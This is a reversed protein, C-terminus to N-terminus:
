SKKRIKKFALILVVVGGVIFVWGVSFPFSTQAETHAPEDVHASSGIVNVLFQTTVVTNNHKFQGILTYVGPESFTYEFPIEPGYFHQMGAHDMGEMHAHTHGGIQLDERLVAVHAESGLYMQLDAIPKERSIHYSFLNQGTTTNEPATLNVTYEGFQKSRSFDYTINPLNEDGVVLFPLIASHAKGNSSYDLLAAYFGAKPFTHELIYIGQSQNVFGSSNEPHIHATTVLDQGVLVTHLEREHVVDLETVPAGSDDALTIYITVPEQSIPPHKSFSLNAGETSTDHAFALASLVLFLALFSSKKARHKMMM